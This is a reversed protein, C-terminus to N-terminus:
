RTELCTFPVLEQSGTSRLLLLELSSAATARPLLRFSGAIVAHPAADDPTAYVVANRRESPALGEWEHWIFVAHGALTTSVMGNGSLPWPGVGSTGMLPLALTTHVRPLTTGRPHATFIRVEASTPALPPTSSSGVDVAEGDKPVLPRWAVAIRDTGEAAVRLNTSSRLALDVALPPVAVHDISV